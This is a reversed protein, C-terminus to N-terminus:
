TSAPQWTMEVQFPQDKVVKAHLPGPGMDTAQVRLVHTSNALYSTELHIPSSGQRGVVPDYVTCGEGCTETEYIGFKLEQTFRSTPTWTLNAIVDAAPQLNTLDREENPTGVPKYYTCSSVGSPHCVTTPLTGNWTSTNTLSSPGDSPSAAQAPGAESSPGSGLCGALLLLVTALALMVATLPRM